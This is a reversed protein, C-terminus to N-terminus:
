AADQRQEIIPVVVAIEGSCLKTLQLERLKAIVVSTLVSGSVLLPKGDKTMVDETVCMGPELKAIPLRMATGDASDHELEAEQSAKRCADIIRRDHIQSREITGTFAARRDYNSIIVAKRFDVAMRLISCYTALRIASDNYVHLEAFSIDAPLQHIERQRAIIESVVGLKPIHQLLKAGLHAHRDLTEDSITELHAGSDVVASGIMCLTSAISLRWDSAVGLHKAIRMADVRVAENTQAFRPDALSVIQTLIKISGAVTDRLLVHEAEELEYQRICDQIVPEIQESSCPKNLFRYIQGENIANIATQQDANGTLMVAISRRSVKHAAKLFAVGDMGPMRMDTIIVAFPGQTRIAELGAQGGEATVLNLNMGLMRKFGSLVNPEDDVMLVKHQTSM